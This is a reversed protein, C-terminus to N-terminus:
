WLRFGYSYEDDGADATKPKEIAKVAALRAASPVAPKAAVTPKTTAGNTATVTAPAPADTAVAAVTAPASPTLAAVKAELQALKNGNEEQQATLRAITAELTDVRVLLDAVPTSAPTGSAAATPQGPQTLPPFFKGDGGPFVQRQLARVEAELKRIRAEPNADTANSQAIVPAALAVALAALLPGLLPRHMAAFTKM